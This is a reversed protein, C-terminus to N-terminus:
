SDTKSYMYLALEAMRHSLAREHTSIHAVWEQM